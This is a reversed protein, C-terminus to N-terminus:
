SKRKTIPLAKRMVVPRPLKALAARQVDPNTRGYNMLTGLHQHGTFTAMTPVDIGASWMTTVARRKLSYITELGDLGAIKKGINNRYWNILEQASGDTIRWARPERWHPFLPDEPDASLKTWATVDSPRVAHRWGGSHKASEIVLEARVPDLDRRKLRCATIPRAGYTLLYDIIALARTGHSAAKDRIAAVQAETLLSKAPKRAPRKPRWAALAPPLEILQETVAWALVLRLAKGRTYRYEGSLAWAALKAPKIKRPDIWEQALATRRVSIAIDARNPGAKEYLDALKALTIPEGVGNTRVWAEVDAVTPLTPSAKSKGTHDTFHTRYGNGHKHISAM